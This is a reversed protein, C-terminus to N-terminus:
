YSSLRELSSFVYTNRAILWLNVFMKLPTHTLPLSWVYLPQPPPDVM